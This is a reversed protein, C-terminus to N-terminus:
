CSSLGGPTPACRSSPPQASRTTQMWLPPAAQLPPTLCGPSVPTRGPKGRRFVLRPIIQQCQQPRSLSSQRGTDPQRDTQGALTWLERGWARELTLGSTRVAPAQPHAPVSPLPSGPGRAWAQADQNQRPAATQPAEGRSQHYAWGGRVARCRQAPMEAKELAQGPRGAGAFDTGRSIPSSTDGDGEQVALAEM